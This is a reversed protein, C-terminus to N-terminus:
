SSQIPLEITFTTGQGPNSDISINGNLRSCIIQHSIALGQGTGKGPEKTTFFPDFVRKIQKPDIGAGTDSIRLMVRGLDSSSRIIIKGKEMNREPLIDEIAHSANVIMNLFVQNIEPLATVMPLDPDLKLEVDAVYKWENRSVTVTNEIIKNIDLPLMKGTGPHSLDKMASVIKGVHGAGDLSQAIAAPVEEQLFEIDADAEAKKVRAQVQKPSCQHTLLAEIAHQYSDLLAFIDRFSDGCFRINDGIYQMPTNIEHAIGAALEGISELKQGLQLQQELKIKETIDSGFLLYSNTKGDEVIANVTLGLFGESGDPREFKVNNLATSFLAESETLATNINGWNWKIELSDFAQGIVDAAALGFTTEAVTNWLSVHCHSDLGILISPISSLLSDIFDREQKLADRTKQITMLRQYADTQQQIRENEAYLLARRMEDLHTLMAGLEDKGFATIPTNYDGNAILRTMHSAQRIGRLLIVAAWISFGVAILLALLESIIIKFLQKTAQDLGDLSYTKILDTIKNEAQHLLAIYDSSAAMWQQLTLHEFKGNPHQMVSARIKQIARIKDNHDLRMVDQIYEPSQSSFENALQTQLAMLNVFKGYTERNIQGQSIAVMLLSRELSAAEKMRSVLMMSNLLGSFAPDPVIVGRKNQKSSDINGFTYLIKLNISVHLMDGVMDSYYDLPEEINSTMRKIHKRHDHIGEMDLMFHETLDDLSPYFQLWFKNSVLLQKFHQYASTVKAQHQALQQSFLVGRNTIFGISLDREYQLGDLLANASTSLEAARGMTQMSVRQSVAQRIDDVIMWSVVVLPLMAILTIKFAIPMNVFFRKLM